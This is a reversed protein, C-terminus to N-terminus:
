IKVKLWSPHICRMIGYILSFPEDGSNKISEIAMDTLVDTIFEGKDNFRGNKWKGNEYGSYYTDFGQCLPM